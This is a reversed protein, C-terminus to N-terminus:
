ILLIERPERKIDLLILFVLKKLIMFRMIQIMKEKQGKKRRIMRKPNVAIKKKRRKKIKMRKKKMRKLLIKMVMM